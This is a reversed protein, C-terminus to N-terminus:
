NALQKGRVLINKPERQNGSFCIVMCAKGTHTIHLNVCFKGNGPQCSESIFPCNEVSARVLDSGKCLFEFKDNPLIYEPGQM